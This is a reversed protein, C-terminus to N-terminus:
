ESAGISWREMRMVGHGTPEVVTNRHSSESSGSKELEAIFSSDMFAEPKQNWIEPTAGRCVRLDTPAGAHDSLSSFSTKATFRTPAELLERDNTKLYKSLAKM